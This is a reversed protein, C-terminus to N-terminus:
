SRAFGSLGKRKGFSISRPVMKLSSMSVTLDEVGSAARSGAKGESGVAIVGEVVDGSGAANTTGISVSTAETSLTTDTVSSGRRERSSTRHGQADVGRRLMSRKGDIGNNVIFFDYNKPFGHKDVLHSRRKKWELCVKECGEVFCAYTKEGKERRAATIPDHNEAIHLGLFHFSPLNARCATCRNTHSQQYHNEYDTYSNFNLTQHPPLLCQLMSAPPHEPPELSAYKPMREMCADMSPKHTVLSTFESPVLESTSEARLRKAM